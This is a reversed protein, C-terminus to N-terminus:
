QSSIEWVVGCGVLPGDYCNTGTGGASTTGYLNGQNDFVVNSVPFAGDSGGAFDHLDTYIWGGGSPTLKFVTGCGDSCNPTVLGERSTTGYLNGANDMTLTSVAGAGQEYGSSFGYLLTYIWNGGSPSLQYVTGPNNTFSATPTSGYLNGSNDFIVGSDPNGGDTKGQFIYLTKETWSLGTPVLQYVTGDSNHGGYIATGYLNGAQDFIVGAVPSRGDDHNQFSYALSNAWSGNSYVLEYVAGDAYAGGVFTTGYLNGARDFTVESYPTAADFPWNEFRHLVTETWPCAATKCATAPPQLNFVLGCGPYPSCGTGGESTTGYLSGNPGIVVRALPSIGDNGGEFSYLPRYVFGFTTRKLEFVTGYGAGGYETTGYLNGAADISLGAVPNAGDPATGTFNHLVTYTQAQAWPTAIVALVLLMPFAFPATATQLDTALNGTRNKRLREM